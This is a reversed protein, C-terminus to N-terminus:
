AGRVTVRGNSKVAYMRSDATGIIAHVSAGDAPATAIGLSAMVGLQIGNKM